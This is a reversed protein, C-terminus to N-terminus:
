LYIHRHATPSNKVLEENQFQSLDKVVYKTV